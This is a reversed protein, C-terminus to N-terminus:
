GISIQKFDEAYLIEGAETLVAAAAPTTGVLVGGDIHRIPRTIELITNDAQKLFVKGDAYNISLEAFLLQAATPVHGAVASKKHVIRNQTTAM